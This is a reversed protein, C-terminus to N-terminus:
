GISWIVTSPISTFDVSLAALERLQEQMQTARGNYKKMIAMQSDHSLM